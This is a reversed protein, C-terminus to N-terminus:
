LTSPTFREEIEKKLINAPLSEPYITIHAQTYFIIRERLVNHIFQLLGAEDLGKLLPRTEMEPLLRHYLVEEFERLHIVLGNAKIYEINDHHCPTGGGTAIIVNDGEIARLTDSEYKRFGEEGGKDFWNEISKNSKEVILTDLDVFLYGMETALQKGYTSKGVGM